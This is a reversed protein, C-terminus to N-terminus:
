GSRGVWAELKETVVLVDASKAESRTALFRPYGYGLHKWSRGARVASVNEMSIRYRAVLGRRRTDSAGM